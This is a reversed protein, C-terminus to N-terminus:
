LLRRRVRRSIRVRVRVCLLDLVILWMVILLYYADQQSLGCPGISEQVMQACLVTQTFRAYLYSTNMLNIGQCEM